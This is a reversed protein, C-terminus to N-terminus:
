RGGLFMCLVIIIIKGFKNFIRMFLRWRFERVNGKEKGKEEGMSLGMLLIM